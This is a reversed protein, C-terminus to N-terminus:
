AARNSPRGAKMVPPDVKAMRALAVRIVESKPTTEPLDAAVRAAELLHAPLRIGLRVTM